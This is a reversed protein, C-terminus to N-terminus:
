KIFREDREDADDAMELIQKTFEEIQNDSFQLFALAEENTGKFIQTTINYSSNIRRVGLSLRRCSADGLVDHKYILSGINTTESLYFSVSIGTFKGKAPAEKVIREAMMESAERLNNRTERRLEEKTM